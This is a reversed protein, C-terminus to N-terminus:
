GLPDVQDRISNLKVTGGREIGKEDVIPMRGWGDVSPDEDIRRALPRPTKGKKEKSFRTIIENQKEKKREINRLSTIPKQHILFQSHVQLM